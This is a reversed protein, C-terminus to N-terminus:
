RIVTAGKLVQDMSRVGRPRIMPAEMCTAGTKNSHIEM